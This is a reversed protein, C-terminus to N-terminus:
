LALTLFVQKRCLDGTFFTLREDNFTARLDFVSVTHGALLLKEVLHRGLFGGGGIIV